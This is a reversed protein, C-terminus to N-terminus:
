QLPAGAEVTNADQYHNHQEPSGYVQECDEAYYFFRLQGIRDGPRLKSWTRLFNFMETTMRGSYGPDAFGATIHVCIARRGTSSKGDLIAGINAPLNIKEVIVGCVFGLPRMLFFLGEDDVGFWGGNRLFFWFRALDNKLGRNKTLATVKDRGRVELPRTYKTQDARMDKILPWWKYKLFREGLCVDYSATKINEEVPNEILAKIAEPNKLAKRLMGDTFYAIKYDPLPPNQHQTKSTM